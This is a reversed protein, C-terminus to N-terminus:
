TSLMVVGYKSMRDRRAHHRVPSPNRGVLPAPGGAADTADVTPAFAYGRNLLLRDAPRIPAPDRDVHEPRM